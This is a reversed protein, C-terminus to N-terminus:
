RGTWILLGSATASGFTVIRDIVSMTARRGSNDPIYLIDNALLTVDPTQRRMIKTLEIPLENKHGTRDDRRIIYAVKSAYQSLGESLALAKLVTTEDDDQLPFAGPKKVNGVVFIKGLEPVRIQEGGHLPLNVEPDAADILSKVPIRRTLSVPVGDPGAQAHTVLVEPGADPALGGARTIAELLSVNGIAQFTIPNRVSGAVSIPRSEYAVVTVTVYPDVLIQEAQLATAIATELQAPLLDEARILQHLMPLRINGDAGVRVTRTFEPADYVSVAILDNAGIKQAPLNAGGPDAVPPPTTQPWATLAALLFPLILRTLRCRRTWAPSQISPNM